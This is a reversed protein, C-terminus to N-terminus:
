CQELGLMYPKDIKPHIALCLQSRVRVREAGRDSTGDNTEAAFCVPGESASVLQLLSAMAAEMPVDLGIQASNARAPRTCSAVTRLTKSDPDCPYTIWARDCGFISLMTDLVHTTQELDETDQIAQNVRDMSELYWLRDQGLEETQRGKAVSADEPGM